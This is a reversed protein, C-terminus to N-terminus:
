KMELYKFEPELKRRMFINAPFIKFSMNWATKKRKRYVQTRLDYSSSTKRLLSDPFLQSGPPVSIFGPQGRLGAEHLNQPADSLYM